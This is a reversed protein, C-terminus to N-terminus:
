FFFYKYIKTWYDYIIMKLILMTNMHGNPWVRLSWITSKRWIKCNSQLNYEIKYIKIIIKFANWKIKMNIQNIFDRMLKFNSEVKRSDKMQDWICPLNSRLSLHWLHIRLHHLQDLDLLQDRNLLHDIHNLLNRLKNKCSQYSHRLQM